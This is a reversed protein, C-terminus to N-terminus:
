PSGPRGGRDRPFDFSRSGIQQPGFGGHDGHDCVAGALLLVSVHPRCRCSPTRCPPPRGPLTRPLSHKSSPRARVEYPREVSSFEITDDSHM